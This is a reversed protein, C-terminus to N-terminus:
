GSEQWPNVSNVKETKVSIFFSPTQTNGTDSHAHTYYKECDKIVEQRKQSSSVQNFQERFSFTNFIIMVTM